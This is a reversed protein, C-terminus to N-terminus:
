DARLVPIQKLNLLRKDATILTLGMVLATAVLFKDAPDRHTLMFHRTQLAIENTLPAENLRGQALTTRIWVEPPETMIVRGREALLLVEWVSIPSIWLENSPNDLEAQVEARLRGTAGASWLWVHTDLLLRM